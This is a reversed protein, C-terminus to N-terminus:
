MMQQISDIYDLVFIHQYELLKAQEKACYSEPSMYSELELARLQFYYDRISLSGQRSSAKEMKLELIRANNRKQGCAAEISKWLDKTTESYKFSMAIGEEM